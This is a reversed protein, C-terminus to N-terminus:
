NQELIFVEMCVMNKCFAALRLFQSKSELHCSFESTMDIQRHIPLLFASGFAKQDDRGEAGMLIPTQTLQSNMQSVQEIAILSEIDPGFEQGIEFVQDKIKRSLPPRMKKEFNVLKEQLKKHMEMSEFADSRAKLNLLYAISEQSITSEEYPKPAEHSIIALEEENKVTTVDLDLITM